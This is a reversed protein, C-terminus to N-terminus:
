NQLTNSRLRYYAHDDEEDSAEPLMDGLHILNPRIAESLVREERVNM